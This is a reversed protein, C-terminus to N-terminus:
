PLFALCIQQSSTSHGQHVFGKVFTCHINVSWPHIALERVVTEILKWPRAYGCSLFFCLVYLVFTMWIDALLFKSQELAQVYCKAVISLHRYLPVEGTQIGFFPM